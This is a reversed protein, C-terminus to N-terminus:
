RRGKRQEYEDKLRAYACNLAFLMFEQFSPKEIYEAKHAYQILKPLKGDEEPRLRFSKVVSKTEETKVEDNM